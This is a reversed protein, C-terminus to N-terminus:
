VALNTITTPIGAELMKVIGKHQIAKVLVDLARGNSPYGMSNLYGMTAPLVRVSLLVRRRDEPLKQKGSPRRRVVPPVLTNVESM